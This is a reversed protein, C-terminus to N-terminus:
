RLHQKYQVFDVSCKVHAPRTDGAQRTRKKERRENNLYIIPSSFKLKSRSSIRVMFTMSPFRQTRPTVDKLFKGELPNKWLDHIEKTELGRANM